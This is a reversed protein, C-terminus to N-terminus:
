RTGSRKAPRTTRAPRTRPQTTAPRKASPRRTPLRESQVAEALTLRADFTKPRNAIMQEYGTVYTKWAAILQRQAEALEPGQPPRLELKRWTNHRYYNKTGILRFLDTMRKLSRLPNTPTLNFGRHLQSAPISVQTESIDEETEQTLVIGLEPPDTMKFVFRSMAAAQWDPQLSGTRGNAMPWPLPLGELNLVRKGDETIQVPVSRTQSRHTTIQAAAKQWDLDITVRIPRAAWARLLAAAALSHGQALPLRGDRTFAFTSHQRRAQTRAAMSENFWDVFGAAPPDAAAVDKMAASYQGLTNNYRIAHLDVVAPKGGRRIRATKAKTEDVSPPSMLWTRAGATGCRQILESLNQKFEDLREASFPLYEPDNLGLCIVVVTPKHVLVDRDLRLLARQVTDGSWGANVYRVRLEPYRVTLFTEVLTTYDNSRHPQTTETLEDGLFVVVDGSRIVLEGTSADDSPATTSEAASLSVSVALLAIAALWARRNM